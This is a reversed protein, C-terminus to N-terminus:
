MTELWQAEVQCLRDQPRAMSGSDAGKIINLHQSAGNDTRALILCKCSEELRSCRVNTERIIIIVVARM